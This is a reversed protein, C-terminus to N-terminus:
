EQALVIFVFVNVVRINGTAAQVALYLFGDLEYRGVKV